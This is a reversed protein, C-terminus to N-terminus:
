STSSHFPSHEACSLSILIKQHAQRHFTAIIMLDWFPVQDVDGAEPSQQCLVQMQCLKCIMRSTPLVAKALLRKDQPLVNFASRLFKPEKSISKSGGKICLSCEDSFALSSLSIELLHCSALLNSTFAVSKHRKAFGSGNLAKQWWLKEKWPLVMTYFQRLWLEPNHYTPIWNSYSSVAISWNYQMLKSTLLATNVCALGCNGIDVPLIAGKQSNQRTASLGSSYRWAWCVHGQQTFQIYGNVLIQWVNWRNKFYSVLFSMPCLWAHERFSQRRQDM